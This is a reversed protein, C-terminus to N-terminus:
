VKSDASIRFKRIIDVPHYSLKANRLGSEGLDQERNIHTIEQPLNRSFERNVLQALGEYFPSAKEFHCVFTTDNLREGLAFARVVGEVLVVVGSLELSQALELGEKTAATEASLSRSGNDIHFRQWEELLLLGEELHKGSFQEVTFSHRSTFYNIRNKKKHFRSGPLQALDSRLYLYDANNRDDSLTFMNESQLEAAFTEDAGYLLNGELLLRRATNVRDDTLPPLFYPTGEYSCGFIVISDHLKSLCYRHVTRFLFLNGFSFESVVPQLEQFCGSLLGKDEINLPRTEPYDPITVDSPKM